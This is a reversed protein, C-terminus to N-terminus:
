YATSFCSPIYSVDIAVDAGLSKLFEHNHPSAVTIIKYNSLTALQIAAQGM